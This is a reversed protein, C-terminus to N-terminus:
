AYWEGIGDWYHEVMRGLSLIVMRDYKNNEDNNNYKNRILEDLVMWCRAMDRMGMKQILNEVVNKLLIKM